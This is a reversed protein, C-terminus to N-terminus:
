DICSAKNEMGHKVTYINNMCLGIFACKHLQEAIYINQRKNKVVVHKPWEQSWRRTTEYYCYLSYLLFHM